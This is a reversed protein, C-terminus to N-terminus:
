VVGNFIDQVRQKWAVGNPLGVQRALEEAVTRWVGILQEPAMYKIKSKIEFLVSRLGPPVEPVAEIDEIVTALARPKTRADQAESTVPTPQAAEVLKLGSVVPWLLESGYGDPNVLYSEHNRPQGPAQKRMRYGTDPPVCGHVAVGAPICTVVTGRKTKWSGGAHSKWEVRDGVKFQAM